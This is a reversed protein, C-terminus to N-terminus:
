TTWWRCVVWSCCPPQQQDRFFPSVSQCKAVSVSVPLALVVAIPPAVAVPLPNASGPVVNGPASAVPVVKGALIPVAIEVELRPEQGMIRGGGAAGDRLITCDFTM